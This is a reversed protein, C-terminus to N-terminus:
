GMAVNMFRMFWLLWSVTVTTKEYDMTTTTSMEEGLIQKNIVKEEKVAM